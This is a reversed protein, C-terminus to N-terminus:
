CGWVPSRRLHAPDSLRRSGSVYVGSMQGIQEDLEGLRAMSNACTEIVIATVSGSLRGLAGPYRAQDRRPRQPM